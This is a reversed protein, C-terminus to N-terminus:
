LWQSLYQNLVDASIQEQLWRLAGKQVASKNYFEFTDKIKIKSTNKGGDNRWRKAFETLTDSSVQSELWDLAANQSPSKQYTELTSLLPSERFSVLQSQAEPNQCTPNFSFAENWSAVTKQDITILSSDNNTFRLRARVESNPASRLLQLLQSDIQFPSRSMYWTSSLRASSLNGGLLLTVADGGTESVPRYSYDAQFIKPSESPFTPLQILQGGVGLELSTPILSEKEIQGSAPAHQVVMEVFCGEIKSGWLSIFFREGPYAKPGAFLEDFQSKNGTGHRGATIKGLPTNVLCDRIDVVRKFPLKKSGGWTLGTTTTLDDECISSEQKALVPLCLSSSLILALGLTAWSKSTFNLM